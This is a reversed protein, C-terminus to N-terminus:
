ALNRRDSASDFAVTFADAHGQLTRMKEFAPRDPEGLQKCAAHWRMQSIRREPKRFTM